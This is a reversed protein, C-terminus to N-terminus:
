TGEIIRLAREWDGNTTIKFNGEDGEVLAIDMGAMVAPESSGNVAYIRDPLLAENAALYRGFRFAEPAQGAFVASRELLGTVQGQSVDSKGAPTKRCLYVTDKMPLAPMAGDHRACAALCATITEESVFPRAADHILVIDDDSAYARIDRLGNYVSLQRTDGPSSFGRCRQLLYARSGKEVGAAKPNESLYREADSLIREQWDKEAVIQVADIGAHILLRAFTHTVVMCGGAELYQKPVSSTLRTGRGGSLLLAINM